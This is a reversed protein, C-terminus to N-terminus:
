SRSAHRQTSRAYPACMTKSYRPHVSTLTGIRKLVRQPIASIPAPMVFVTPWYQSLPLATRSRRYLCASAGRPGMTWTVAKTALLM